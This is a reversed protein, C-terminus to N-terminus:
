NLVKELTRSRKEVFAQLRSNLNGLRAARHYSELAAALANNHEQSIGLGIWNKASTEDQALALQFYAIADRHQDIRQYSAALMAQQAADNVPEDAFLDIVSRYAGTKFLARAYETKFVAQSPYKQISERLLKSLYDGRQQRSYLALLQRRAELDQHGGLLSLLLDEAERNRGSQMLEGAYRLESASKGNPNTSTIEMKVPAKEPESEAIQTDVQPAIKQAVEVVAPPIIALQPQPQAKKLLIVWITEAALQQQSTEVLIDEATRFDIDVGDDGPRISLQQIWRKDHMTPAVIQSHVQKLHYVFSNEGREKLYSVVKDTLSFELRLDTDSERIQLGIIDVTPSPEAIPSTEIALSVPMPELAEPQQEVVAVVAMTEAATAVPQQAAVIEIPPQKQLYLWGVLGGGVFLLSVALLYLIPLRSRRNGPKSVSAIDIPTFRTSKAELDRLVNNIISM